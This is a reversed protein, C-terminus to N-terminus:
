VRGRAALGLAVPFDGPDGPPIASVTVSFRPGPRCKTVHLAARAAWRRAVHLTKM